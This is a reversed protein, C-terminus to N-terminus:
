SKPRLIYKALSLVLFNAVLLVLALTFLSSMQLGSAENFENAMVSTITTYPSFISDLAAHRNGIVYAVAMTEGLARGMAIIIGGALASKTFPIIVQVIAEWHTAGLGYASEKLIAPVQKFADRAISTIFPIIMVSLVMSATFINVGGAYKTQFFPGILPLEGLTAGVLPQFHAELFPALVFLGWMGYIISPIAALLEIATGITGRLKHPCLETLFIATGLAIPIATILALATSIVTGALPRFAGYLEDAYNWQASFIFKFLGFNRIAPVSEYLLTVLMGGILVIVSVAAIATLVKFTNNIIKVRNM